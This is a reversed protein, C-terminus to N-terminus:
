LMAQLPLFGTVQSHNVSGTFVPLESVYAKWREDSVIPAQVYEAIGLDDLYTDLDHMMTTVAADEKMRQELRSRCGSEVYWAPDLRICTAEYVDLIQRPLGVKVGHSYALAHGIAEISSQSQPLILSNFLTDRHSFGLSNM